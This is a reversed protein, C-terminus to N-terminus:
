VEGVDVVETLGTLVDWYTPQGCAQDGAAGAVADAAWLMPEEKSQGHTVLLRRSVIRSNRFAGVAKLDNRDREAHRSELVALSVDREDLCYLLRGLVLRRAREQRRPNTMTGIVVLSRVPLSSITTVIWERRPPRETRWHLAQQRGLLLQSLQVRAGPCEDEPVLIAALIYHLCSADVRRMSEDVFALLRTPGTSPSGV